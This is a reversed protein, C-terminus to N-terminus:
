HGNTLRQCPRQICAPISFRHHIHNILNIARMEIVLITLPCSALFILHLQVDFLRYARTPRPPVVTNPCAKILMKLLLKGALLIEEKRRCWLKTCNAACVAEVVKSLARM